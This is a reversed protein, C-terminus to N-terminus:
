MLRIMMLIIFGLFGLNLLFLGIRSWWVMFLAGYHYFRLFYISGLPVPTDEKPRGPFIADAKVYGLDLADRSIKRMFGSFKLFVLLFLFLPLYVVFFAEVILYM